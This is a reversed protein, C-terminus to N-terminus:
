FSYIEIEFWSFFNSDNTSGSCSFWRQYWCHVLHPLWDAALDLSTKPNMHHYRRSSTMIVDNRYYKEFFWVLKIFCCRVVHECNSFIKRDNRLLGNYKKIIDSFIKIWEFWIRIFIKPVNQFGDSKLDRNWYSDNQHSMVQSDYSIIAWVSRPSFPTSQALVQSYRPHLRNLSLHLLFAAITSLFSGGMGRKTRLHSSFRVFEHHSQLPRAIKLFLLIRSISSAVAFTSKFVSAKM